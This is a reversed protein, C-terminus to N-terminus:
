REFTIKKWKLSCGLDFNDFIVKSYIEYMGSYFIEKIKM